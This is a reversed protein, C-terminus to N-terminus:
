ELWWNYINGNTYDGSFKVYYLGSLSQIDVRYETRSASWVDAVSAAFDGPTYYNTVKSQGVGVTVKQNVDKRYTGALEVVLTNYHTLDIAPEINFSNGNGNSKAWEITEGTVTYSDGATTGQYISYGHTLGEGEKFLWLKQGILVGGQATKFGKNVWAGNVYQFAKNVSILLSGQKVANLVDGSVSYQLWVDGYNRPEGNPSDPSLIWNKMRTDSIVVIDNDAVTESSTAATYVRFNLNSKNLKFDM